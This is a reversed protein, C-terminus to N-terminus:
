CHFAPVLEFGLLERRAQTRERPVDSNGRGMPNELEHFTENTKRALWRSIFLNLAARKIPVRWFSFGDAGGFIFGRHCTQFIRARKWGRAFAHRVDRAVKVRKGTSTSRESVFNVPSREDERRHFFLLLVQLLRWRLHPPPENEFRSTSPINRPLKVALIM